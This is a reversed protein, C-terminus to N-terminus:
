EPAQEQAADPMVAGVDINPRTPTPIVPRDAGGLAEGGGYATIPEIWIIHDQGDRLSIVAPGVDRADRDWYYGAILHVSEMGDISLQPEQAMFEVAGLTPYTSVAGDDHHRKVRLRYNIGVGFERTPEKDVVAVSDVPDLLAALHFWLRDHIWSALGRESHQAVWSPRATRYETLDARARGVAGDIAELVKDGLDEFVQGSSPYSKM